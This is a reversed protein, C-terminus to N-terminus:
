PRRAPTPRPRPTATARSIFRFTCNFDVVPGCSFAGAPIHITNVGPVAPSTNLHFTIRFSGSLVTASDAPTGNVTLDSAQVTVRDVQESLDIIFDTPPTFVTVGCSTSTVTCPATATPTPSPPNGEEFGLIQFVQDPSVQDPMCVNKRNWTVCGTGYGDGPNEWAADANSQVTRNHWFWQGSPNFDQRAQVSVWYTGGNILSPPYPLNITFDPPTGTYALNLFTAILNGPLNDAGNSYFYVNFSSAPGGGDSYEGMVRVATVFVGFGPGPDPLVFDDAAQDDLADFAPEFGQSGINIPPETAPNDYQDWLVGGTPFKPMALPSTGARSESSTAPVHTTNALTNRQQLAFPIACAALSLLLYFAGRIRPAKTAPNTRNIKADM